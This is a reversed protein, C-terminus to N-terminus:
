SRAHLYVCVGHCPFNNIWGGASPCTSLKWKSAVTFLLAIFLSPIYYTRTDLYAYTCMEIAYIDSIHQYSKTWWIALPFLARMYLM